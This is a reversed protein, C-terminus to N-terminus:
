WSEFYIIIYSVNYVHVHANNKTIRKSHIYTHLILRKRYM